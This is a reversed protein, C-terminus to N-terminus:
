DKLKMRVIVPNSKRTQTKFYNQLIKPYNTNKATNEQHGSFMQLSSVTTYIYDNNYYLGKVRLHQGFIPLYYSSSDSQMREISTLNRNVTNYIFNYQGDSNSGAYSTYVRPNVKFFLDHKHYFINSVALITKKDSYLKERLAEIRKIDNGQIISPDIIRSSPFILQFAVKATDKTIKYVEHTLPMAVYISDKPTVTGTNIYGHLMCIATNGSQIVPILGKHFSNNKYVNLLYTTDSSLKQGPIVHSNGSVLFYDKELSIFKSDNSLNNENPLEFSKMPIGLSSFSYISSKLRNPLLINVIISNSHNVYSINISANQNFVKKTLFIGDKKKFFFVSKTDWDYIVYSDNTIIMESVDGFLSEKTTELPIYEISHFYDSIPGGYAQDPNIRIKQLEQSYLFTTKSFFLIIIFFIRM